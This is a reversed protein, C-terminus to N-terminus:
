GGLSRYLRRHLELHTAPSFHREVYPQAALQCGRYRERLSRVASELGQVTPDFAVGAGARVLPDAISVYRSVLIPKGHALAELGSRPAPIFSRHELAPLVAAHVEDYIAGMDGIVGDRVEVNPAGADRILGRLKALQRGRWALLFRVDPMRSAARLLLQVGRTLFDDAAFPSSAFLITFRGPAERYASLPIGPRILRLSRERVGVQLLLDRDWESQVVVAAFRRLTDANGEIRALNASGKAVTLVGRRPALLPALWREGASAFLHNIGSGSAHSRLLPYLPLGQPLPIRKVPGRWQFRRDRLNLGVVSARTGDGLGRRLTDIEKSVAEWEPEYNFVWYRVDPGGPGIAAV